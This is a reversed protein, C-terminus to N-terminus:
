EKSAATEAKTLAEEARLIARRDDESMLDLDILLDNEVKAAVKVDAHVSPRTGSLEASDMNIQRMISLAATKGRETKAQAYLFCAKRYLQENRNQCRLLAKSIEQLVPQWETRTAFDNYATSKSCGFKAMLDQVTEPTNLGNGEDKLLELRRLVRNQQM